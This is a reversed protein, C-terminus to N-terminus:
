GGQGAWLWTGALGSLGLGGCVGSCTLVVVAAGVWLPWRRRAGSASPLPDSAETTGDTIRSTGDATRLRVTEAEAPPGLRLTEADSEFPTGPTPLTLVPIPRGGSPATAPAAYPQDIGDLEGPDLTIDGDRPPTPPPPQAKDVIPDAGVPSPLLVLVERLAQELARASDYRDRRSPETARRVVARVEVPLMPLVKDREATVLQTPRRGTILTFLTAGVSYIDARFDVKSADKQQEPPMYALTGLSMNSLTLRLDQEVRAVGFDSVKVNGQGDLLLNQPKIDRHVVGADHAAQLATCVDAAMRVAHHPHLAGRTLRSGLTGGEMYEMVMYPCVVDDRLEFLRVLHPHGLRALTRAEQVFRARQIPDAVAKSTMVKIACWLALREDWCLYVRAMGGAGLRRSIRYREGITTGGLM